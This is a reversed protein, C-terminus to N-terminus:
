WFGRQLGVENVTKMAALYIAMGFPDIAAEGDMTGVGFVRGVLM